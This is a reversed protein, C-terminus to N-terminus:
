RSSKDAPGPPEPDAPFECFGWFQFLNKMMEEWKLVDGTKCLYCQAGLDYAKGIDSRLESSSWVVVPIIARKPHELFWQLIQFGDARPMKLDTILAAPFPHIARDVYAGEGNLYQIAELGDAVAILPNSIKLKAFIKKTLFVDDANDECFLVPRRTNLMDRLKLMRRAACLLFQEAVSM